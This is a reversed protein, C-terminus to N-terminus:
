VAHRISEITFRDVGEVPRTYTIEKGEMGIMNQPDGIIMATLINKTPHDVHSYIVPYYGNRGFSMYRTDSIYSDPLRNDNNYMVYTTNPYLFFDGYREGLGFVSKSSQLEFSYIGVNRYQLSFQNCTSFIPYLSQNVEQPLNITFCFRKVPDEQIDL